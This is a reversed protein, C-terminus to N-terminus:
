PKPSRYLLQDIVQDVEEIMSSDLSKRGFGLDKLNTLAFRRQEKWIPGETTIIGLNRGNYGRINRHFWSKSRRTYLFNSNSYISYFLFIPIKHFPAFEQLRIVQSNTWQM